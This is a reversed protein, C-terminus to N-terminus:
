LVGGGNIASRILFGKFADYMVDLSGDGGDAMPIKEIELDSIHVMRMRIAEEIANAVQSASLSGKFKDPM